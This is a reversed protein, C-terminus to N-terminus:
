PRHVILICILDLVANLMTWIHWFFFLTTLFFSYIFLSHRIPMLFHSLLFSTTQNIWNFTSNSFILNLLKFSVNSECWVCSSRHRSQNHTIIAKIHFRIVKYILNVHISLKFSFKLVMKQSLFFTNRHIHYKINYLTDRFVHGLKM